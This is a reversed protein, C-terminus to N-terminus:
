RIEGDAHLTVGDDLNLSHYASEQVYPHIICNRGVTVGAPIVARKGALTIGSYLHKPHQHNKVQYNEGLGVVARAGIITGKDCVALDVVANKEVVCDAFLISNRVVAGEEIVVGPALVSNIVTGKIVCGAPILANQL